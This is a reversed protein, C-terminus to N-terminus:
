QNLARAAIRSSGLKTQLVWMKLSVIMAQLELELLGWCGRRAGACVHAYVCHCVCVCLPIFYFCVYFWM